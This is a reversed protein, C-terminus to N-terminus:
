FDADGRALPRLLHEARIVDDPKIGAESTFVLLASEDNALHALVEALFDTTGAVHRVDDPSLGTLALFRDLRSSEAALFAFAQAAILEADDRSLTKKM